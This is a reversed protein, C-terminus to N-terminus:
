RARVADVLPPLPPPRGLALEIARAAQHVLMGLGDAYRATRARADGALPTAAGYAMELVAAARPLAALGARADNPAWAAAPVASVLVDAGALAARLDGATWGAVSIRDQQAPAIRGRL